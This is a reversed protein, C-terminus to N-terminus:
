WRIPESLVAVGLIVTVPLLYTVTSAVTPGEAQILRYCPVDAAGTGM